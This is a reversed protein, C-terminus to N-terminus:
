SVGVVLDFLTKKRIRRQADVLLTSKGVGGMGYIGVVRNSNNALADMIDRIIEARSEFIEDDRLKPSTSVSSTSASQVVDIGERRAPNPAAVNGLAPDIFSIDNLDKFESGKRALEQIDKIKDKAKKNFEEFNNLLTPAEKLAKETSEQWVMVHGYVNRLNNRAEEAANHVRETENALRRVEKQIDWTYCSKCSMVHGFQHKILLVADKCETWPRTLTVITKPAPDGSSIDKFGSCEYALQKIDEALAGMVDRTISATSESVGDDM